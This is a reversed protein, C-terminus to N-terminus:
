ANLKFLFWLSARRSIYFLALAVAVVACMPLALWSLNVMKSVLLAKSDANTGRLAVTGRLLASRFCERTMFLATGVLLELQMSSVGFVEPSVYRLLIQNLGFTFLRQFTTLVM